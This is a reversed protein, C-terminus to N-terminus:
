RIPLIKGINPNSTSIQEIAFIPTTTTYQIQYDNPSFEGKKKFGLKEVLLSGTFNNKDIFFKYGLMNGNDFIIALKVEGKLSIEKAITESLEPSSFRKNTNEEVFKINDLLTNLPFYPFNNPSLQQLSAEAKFNELFRLYIFKDTSNFNRVVMSKGGEESFNSELENVTYGYQTLLNKTELVSNLQIYDWDLFVKQEKIEQANQVFLSGVNVSNNITNSTTAFEKFYQKDSNPIMPKYWKYFKSLMIEATEKNKKNNGKSFLEAIKIYTLLDFNFFADSANGKLYWPVYEFDKIYYGKMFYKLANKENVKITSTGKLYIMGLYYYAVCKYYLGYMKNKSMNDLTTLGNKEDKPIGFNEYEGTVQLYAYFAKLNDFEKLRILENVAERTTNDNCNFYGTCFEQCNLKLFTLIIDVKSNHIKNKNFYDFIEFIEKNKGQLALTTIIEDLIDNRQYESANENQLAKFYYNEALDYKSESFYKEAVKIQAKYIGNSADLMSQREEIDKSLAEQKAEQEKLKKQAIISSALDNLSNSFQSIAEAQSQSKTVQSSSYTTTQSPQSNNSNTTATKNNSYTTNSSNPNNNTSTNQSNTNGCLKPVNPVGNDCEAFCKYGKNQTGNSNISCYDNPDFCVKSFEVYLNTSSPNLTWGKDIGGPNISTRGDISSNQIDFNFSVKSSYNNKIEIDWTYQKASSNYDKVKCRSQLGKFCPNQVWPGWTYTVEQGFVFSLQFLLIPLLLLKKM